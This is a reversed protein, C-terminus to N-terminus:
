SGKGNVFVGLFMFWRSRRGTRSKQPKYIVNQKVTILTLVAMKHQKVLSQSWFCIFPRLWGEFQCICRSFSDIKILEWHSIKNIISWTKSLQHSWFPWTTNKPSLHSWFVYSGFYAKPRFLPCTLSIM